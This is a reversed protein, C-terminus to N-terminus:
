SAAKGPVIELRNGKQQCTWGHALLYLGLVDRRSRRVTAAERVPPARPPSPPPQLASGEIQIPTGAFLQTLQEHPATGSLDSAPELWASEERSGPEFRIHAIGSRQEWDSGSEAIPVFCVVGFRYDLTRSTLLAQEVFAEGVARAPDRFCGPCSTRDCGEPCMPTQLVLKHYSTTLPWEFAAGGHCTWREFDVHEVRTGLVERTIADVKKEALVRALEEQVPRDNWRILRGQDFTATQLQKEGSNWTWTGHPVNAAFSQECKFTVGQHTETRVWRGHKLGHRYLGELGAARDFFPGHLQGALFHRKHKLEGSESYRAEWVKVNDVHFEEFPGFKSLGHKLPRGNWDRRFTQLRVESYGLPDTFVEREVWPWRFWVLGLGIFVMSLLLGRLSYQMVFPSPTTSSRPTSDTM